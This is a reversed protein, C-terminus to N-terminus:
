LKRNIIDRFRIPSTLDQLSLYRIKFKPNDLFLTGTEACNAWTGSEM